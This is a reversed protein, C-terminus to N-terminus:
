PCPRHRAGLPAALAPGLGPPPARRARRRPHADVRVARAHRGEGPRLPRDVRDAGRPRLLHLRRGRMSGAARAGEQVRHVEGAARVDDGPPQPSRLDGTAKYERWLALADEASVRRRSGTSSTPKMTLFQAGSFPPVTLRVFATDPASGIDKMVSKPYPGRWLAWLGLGAGRGRGEVDGGPDRGRALAAGAGLRAAPDRHVPVGAERARELIQAALHGKGAAVVQPAGDGTYRLAATVDPDPM